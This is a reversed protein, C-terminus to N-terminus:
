MDPDRWRQETGEVEFGEESLACPSKFATCVSGGWQVSCMKLHSFLLFSM